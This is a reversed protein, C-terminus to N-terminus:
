VHARGIQQGLMNGLDELSVNGQRIGNRRTLDELVITTRYKPRLIELKKSIEPHNRAISDDIIDILEYIRHADGRNSTSRAAASLDNRITQLAEGQIGFTNPKSGPRSALSSFNGIINNVTSKIASVQVSGPM